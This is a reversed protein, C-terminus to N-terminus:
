RHIDSEPSDGDADATEFAAVGKKFTEPVPVPRGTQSDVVVAVIHGTNVLQRSTREFMSFDIKFSTHGFDPPAVFVDLIQDFYAAAKFRTLAEAYYLNQGNAVFRDFGYGVRKLYALLAMDCYTLFNGFFVHGNADTDSFRVTLPLCFKPTHPM